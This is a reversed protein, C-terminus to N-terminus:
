YKLEDFFYVTGSNSAPNGAGGDEYNAGTLVCDGSVSVSRGLEDSVAADGARLVSVESWNDAGDNVFLYAAGSLTLPNGAGGAERPAGVVLYNGFLDVSTGFLDDSDQEGAYLVAIEDWNDSGDNKFIYVAGSNSLSGDISDAANAGVAIYDGNISVSIGFNDATDYDSAHRVAVENWVDSGDKKYVYVSGAGTKVDVTGVDEAYAGVLAYDGSVYVSRGFMDNDQGNGSSLSAVLDWSDFGDNKFIYAAGPMDPAAADVDGGPAGVIAHEGGISVARGFDQYATVTGSTIVIESGWNDSGDNKFIHATGANAKVGSDDVDSLFAGAIAYDGSIGVAVGFRDSLERSGAFIKSVESWSGDSGRKMIYASGCDSVETVPGDEFSAGAIAYDGDIDVSFGLWDNAARDSARVAQEVLADAFVAAISVDAAPMIFSLAEDATRRSSSLTVGAATFSVIRYNGVVVSLTVEIGEGAENMDVTVSEGAADGTVTLTIEHFNDPNLPDAPNNREVSSEPALICAVAFGALLVVVLILILNKM